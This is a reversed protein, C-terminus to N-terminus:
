QGGRGARGGRREGVRVAGCPWVSRQSKGLALVLITAECHAALIRADAITVVPPSDIPARDYREAAEKLLKESAGTHGANRRYKGGAIRWALFDSKEIATPKVADSLAMKGLLVYSLGPSEPLGFIKHQKPTRCDADILPARWGHAVSIALNSTLMTNGTAVVPSTILITRAPHDGLGFSIATRITRYSESVESYPRLRMEQGRQVMTGIQAADDRDGGLFPIFRRWRMRLPVLQTRALLGDKVQINPVAGLIPLSLLNSIEEPLRLHQEMMERLLSLGLGSMLGIVLAMGLTHPRNPKVAAFDPKATELVSATLHGIDETVNVTKM